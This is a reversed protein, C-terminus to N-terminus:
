HRTKPTHTGTIATGEAAKSSDAITNAKLAQRNSLKISCNWEVSYKRTMSDKRPDVLSALEFLSELEKLGM